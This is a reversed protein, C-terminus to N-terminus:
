AWGRIELGSLSRERKAAEGHAARLLHAMGVPEGAEAAHFAANLAINRINGGAMHLQALRAYDLDQVPAAAPFVGRWITEREDADPFPFHIVFRLRRQFASDLAAKQNSTLIALGRYAEMRQLLYSVEINAYRDHSDKVESRKGFLADAEDFLLIAGRDEAADFVRALNKETEGIYKSVVASLDIRFLELHLENALVEAAMTKGTGSEGEFLASIGLGRTNKAAFGWRDHVTLRHRLQATIQRLIAKQVEPLVLDDWGAAPEIHQALGELRPREMARCAQWLAAAPDALMAAERALAAGARQIDQASLRFESAVAELTSGLRAAAGGLAQEWLRLQDRSDPKEVQFRLDTRAFSTPERLAVLTLGGVREVFRRASTGPAADACEVLLASDFLATEREWLSALLEVEHPSAPIDEAAIAQLQLGCRGALQAAMDRKGHLDSGWLQLVPLPPGLKDLAALISDLAAQHADAMASPEAIRRLLPALRQDLQNVGALYHLVREDIRLRASVLAADEAPELLHWRRLPRSPGLASWHAEPLVALALAFSAWSRQAGGAAAACLTAFEADMEVGAALLLLDREFVSLGFRETLRDIGAPAALEARCREVREGADEAAEGRLARKLRAFEAVLFRQNGEAWDHRLEPRPEPANM